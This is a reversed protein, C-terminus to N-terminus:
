IRDPFFFDIEYFIFLCGLPLSTSCKLYFDILSNRLSGLPGMGGIDQPRLRIFPAEVMSFIFFLFLRTFASIVYFTADGLHDWM